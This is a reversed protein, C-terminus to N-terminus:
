SVSPHWIRNDRAWHPVLGWRAERVVPEGQELRVIPIAQTPAINNRQIGALPNRVREIWGAPWETGDPAPLSLAYRGCM